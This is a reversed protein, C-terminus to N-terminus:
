PPNSCNGPFRLSARTGMRNPLLMESVGPFWLCRQCGSYWVPPTLATRELLPMSSKFGSAGGVRIWREKLWQQLRSSPWGAMM